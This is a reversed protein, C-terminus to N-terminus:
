LAQRDLIKESEDERLIEEESRNKREDEGEKSGKKTSNSPGMVTPADRTREGSTEGESPPPLM